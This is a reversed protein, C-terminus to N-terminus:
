ADRKKGLDEKLLDVVDGASNFPRKRLSPLLESLFGDVDEHTRGKTLYNVSGTSM